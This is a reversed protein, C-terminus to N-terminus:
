PTVGASADLQRAQQQAYDLLGQHVAAVVARPTITAGSFQDFDGGDRQVQWQRTELNALSKGNFDLIWNDIRPEIRDGLGPTEQHAFVRVGLIEGAPNFALWLRIDGNYGAHSTLSVIHGRLGSDDSIDFASADAPGSTQVAPGGILTAPDRATLTAQALGTVALLQQNQYARQNNSIREISVFNISSVLLGCCGALLALRLVAPQQLSPWWAKFKM